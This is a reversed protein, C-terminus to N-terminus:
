QALSAKVMDAISKSDAKGGIRSNALGMVKGMDKMSSAGTEAVIKMVEAKLEEPSLQKPLYKEITEIEEREKTALDERKQQEFITMSDRRTKVLRQLLMIEKEEGLEKGAGPETMALLIASKIARLGRLQTQDKALMAKKIDDNIRDTLSM